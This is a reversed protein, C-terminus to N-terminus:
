LEQQDECSLIVKQDRAKKIRDVRIGSNKADIAHRIKQIVDESSDMDETSSVIM